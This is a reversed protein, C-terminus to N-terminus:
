SITDSNVTGHISRGPESVLQGSRGVMEVSVTRFIRRYSLYAVFENRRLPFMGAALPLDPVESLCLFPSGSSLAANAAYFPRPSHGADWGPARAGSVSALCRGVARPGHFLASGTDQRSVISGMRAGRGDWSGCRCKASGVVTGPVSTTCINAQLSM